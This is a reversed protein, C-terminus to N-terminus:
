ILSKSNVKGGAVTISKKGVTCMTEGGCKGKNEGMPFFQLGDNNGIMTIKINPIGDVPKRAIMDLQGQVVIMTTILNLKYGDPFILRGRVDLGDQLTLNAGAYDMIVCQGCGITVRKTYVNATGIVESWKTCVASALKSNCVLPVFDLTELRRPQAVQRGTASSNRFSADFVVATKNNDFESLDSTTVNGRLAGAAIVTSASLLLIIVVHGIM